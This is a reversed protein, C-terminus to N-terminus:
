KNYKTQLQILSERTNEIVIYYNNAIDVPIRDNNLDYNLWDEMVDLNHIMKDIDKSVYITDYGKKPIVNCSTVAVLISSIILKKM